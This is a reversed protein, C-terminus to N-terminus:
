YRYQEYEGNPAQYPYAQPQDEPYPQAVDRQQPVWSGGSPAEPAYQHQGTYPDAYAPYADQGTGYGYDYAAYAGPDPQASLAGTGIYPDSYAAYTQQEGAGYGYGTAYGPDQYAAAQGYPDPAAPAQPAYYNPDSYDAGPYGSGDYGPGAEYGPATEYGTPAYGDATTGYGSGAPDYAGAPDDTRPEFVSADSAEVPDDAPDLADMLATGADQVDGDPGYASGYELDSVELVPETRRAGAGGRRRGRRGQEVEPEADRKTGLAWGAVFGRRFSLTVLTQGVAFATAGVAIVVVSGLLVGVVVGLFGAFALVRWRLRAKYQLLVEALLWLAVIGFAIYLVTWGM